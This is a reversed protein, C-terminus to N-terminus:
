GLSCVSKYDEERLDVCFNLVRGLIHFMLFYLGELTHVHICKRWACM